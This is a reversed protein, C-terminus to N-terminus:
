CDLHDTEERLGDVDFEVCRPSNAWEHTYLTYTERFVALNTEIEMVQVTEMGLENSKRADM